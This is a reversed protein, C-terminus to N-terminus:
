DHLLGLPFRHSAVARYWFLDRGAPQEQPGPPWAADSWLLQEVHEARLPLPEGRDQAPEAGIVPSARGSAGIPRRVVHDAV